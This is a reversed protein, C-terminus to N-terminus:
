TVALWIADQVGGADVTILAATASGNDIVIARSYIHDLIGLYNQPLANEAPTIDVKAAGVRLATNQAYATVSMGAAVVIWAIVFSRKM